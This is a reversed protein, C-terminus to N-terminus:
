NKIREPIKKTISWGQPMYKPKMNEVFNKRWEVIFDYLTGREMCIDVIKKAHNLGIYDELENAMSKLAKRHFRIVKVLESEHLMLDQYDKLTPTTEIIEQSLRIIKELKMNDHYKLISSAKNIVVKHNRYITTKSNILDSIKPVGFDDAIEDRYFNSFTREYFEHHKTCIIVVDHHNNSKYVKPMYQRYLTPIIHHKQLEDEAGCIVCRREIPSLLFEDDSEVEMKIPNLFQVEKEGIIKVLDRSLYWNAKHETNIFRLRGEM